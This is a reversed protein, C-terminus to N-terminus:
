QKKATKKKAFIFAKSVFYNIIFIIAEVLVKLALLSMKMILNDGVGELLFHDFLFLLGLGICVNIAFVAVYKLAKGLMKEKNPFVLFNNMLFNYPGSVLRAGLYPILVILPFDVEFLFELLAFLGFDIFFSTVAVLIYLLPTKYIRMSDRIPRFHSNENNDYITTIVVQTIQSARAADHLFNFEYEYRDGVTNLAMDFLNSPIGRLGTQTDQIHKGTSMKFYFSSFRNGVKNRAPTEPLSFDRVGLLLHGPNEGMSDRVKIIDKLTHQGDGDATIIGTVDKYNDVIHKIGYKLAYGKGHNEPYSLVVFNELSAIQDFISKFAEGSGDDVVVIKEFSTPDITSLFPYAKDCPKYIPILLAAKM